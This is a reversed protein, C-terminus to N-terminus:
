MIYMKAQTPQQASQDLSVQARRRCDLTKEPSAAAVASSQPNDYRDTRRETHSAFMGLRDVARSDDATTGDGYGTLDKYKTSHDGLNKKALLRSLDYHHNHATNTSLLLQLLAPDIDDKRAVGDELLAEGQRHLAAVATQLPNARSLFGGFLMIIYVAFAVYSLVGLTVDLMPYVPTLNLLRPGRGEVRGEGGGAHTLIPTTHASAPTARAHLPTPVMLLTLALPLLWYATM